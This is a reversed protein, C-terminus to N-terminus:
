YEEYGGVGPLPIVGDHIDFLVAEEIESSDDEVDNAMLHGEKEKKEYASKHNKRVYQKWHMILENWFDSDLRLKNICTKVVEYYVRGVDLWGDM